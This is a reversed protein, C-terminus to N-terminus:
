GKKGNLSDYTYAFLLIIIIIANLLYLRSRSLFLRRLGCKKRVGRTSVRLRFWGYPRGLEIGVMAFSWLADGPIQLTVKCVRARTRTPEPQNITTQLMRTRRSSQESNNRLAYPSFGCLILGDKLHRLATNLELAWAELSDHCLM